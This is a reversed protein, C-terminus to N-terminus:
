LLFNRLMLRLSTRGKSTKFYTERRLADQKSIHAEYYILRLPRRGATSCVSGSNHAEIRNKLDSSFGIYFQNDKLSLLIYMYFM